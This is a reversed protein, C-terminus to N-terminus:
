PLQPRSTWTSGSTTPPCSHSAPPSGSPPISRRHQRKLRCFFRQRLAFEKPFRSSGAEYPFFIVAFPTSPHLGHVLFQFLVGPYPPCSIDCSSLDSSCVDS